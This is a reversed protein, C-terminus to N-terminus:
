NRLSSPQLESRDLIIMGYEDRTDIQRTQLETVILKKFCLM